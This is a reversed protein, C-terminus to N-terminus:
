RDREIEVLAEAVGEEWETPRWLQWWRNRLKPPHYDGNEIAWRYCRTRAALRSPLGTVQYAGNSVQLTFGYTTVMRSERAAGASPQAPRTRGFEQM